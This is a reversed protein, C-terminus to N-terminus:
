AIITCPYLSWRRIAHVLSDRVPSDGFVTTTAKSEDLVDFFVIFMNAIYEGISNAHEVTRDGTDMGKDDDAFATLL